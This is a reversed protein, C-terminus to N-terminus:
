VVEKPKRGKALNALRQAKIRDLEAQLAGITAAQQTIQYRLDRCQSEAANRQHVADVVASRSAKLDFAVADFRKRTVFM